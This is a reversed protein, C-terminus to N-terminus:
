FSSTSGQGSSHERLTGARVESNKLFGKALLLVGLGAVSWEGM